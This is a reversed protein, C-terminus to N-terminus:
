NTKTLKKYLNLTTLSTLIGIFLSYFTVFMSWTGFYEREYSKVVFSKYLIGGIDIWAPINVVLIFFGFFLVTKFNNKVLRFSKLVSHKASIKENIVIATTFTNILLWSLTSLSFITGFLGLQVTTLNQYAGAM